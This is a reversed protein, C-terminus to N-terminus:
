LIYYFLKMYCSSASAAKLVYNQLLPISNNNLTHSKLKCFKYKISYHGLIQQHRIKTRTWIDFFPDFSKVSVDFKGRKCVNKIVSFVSLGRFPNCKTTTGATPNPKGNRNTQLQTSRTSHKSRPCGINHNKHQQHFSVRPLKTNNFKELM